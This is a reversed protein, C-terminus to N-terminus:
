KRKKNAVPENDYIISGEKDYVKLIKDRGNDIPIIGEGFPVLAIVINNPENVAELKGYDSTRTVGYSLSIVFVKEGIASKLKTLDMKNQKTKIFLDRCFRSHLELNQYFPSTNAQASVEGNKRTVL